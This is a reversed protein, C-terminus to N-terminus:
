HWGYQCKDLGELGFVCTECAPLGIEAWVFQIRTQHIETIFVKFYKSGDFSRVIFTDGAKFPAETCYYCYPPACVYNPATTLSCFSPEEIGALRASVNLPDLRNGSIAGGCFNGGRAAFVPIPHLNGSSGTSVYELDPFNDNDFDIGSGDLILSGVKVTCPIPERWGVSILEGARGADDCSGNTVGNFYWAGVGGFDYGQFLSLPIKGEAVENIQGYQAGSGYFIWDTDHYRHSIVASEKTGIIGADIGRLIEGTKEYVSYFVVGPGKGVIDFTGSWTDVRWYLYNSDKALYVAKIDTGTGCISDGQVDLVIPDIGVWDGPLGDVTITRNPISISCLEKFTVFDFYGHSDETPLNSGIWTLNEVSCFIYFKV